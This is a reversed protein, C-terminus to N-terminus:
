SKRLKARSQGPMAGAEPRYPKMVRNVKPDEPIEATIPILKGTFRVVPGPTRNPQIWLDLRGLKVGYEGAQVIPIAKEPRKESRVVYPRELWTHTDGGVIVDIEPVEEALVRDLFFGIHTLAIIVDTKPRLTKVMRQAATIPDEIRLDGLGPYTATRPATLGFVGIRLGARKLIVYERTLLQGTSRLRANASIMPFHAERRRQLLNPIGARFENNGMVMLQYGAANMALIEPKGRHKKSLPGREWLDGADVVLVNPKGAGLRKLLTSRRAVGGVNTLDAYDIPFLRGHVDNTHLITLQVEKVRAPTSPRSKAVAVRTPPPPDPSAQIRSCGALTPLLLLGLLPLPSISKM